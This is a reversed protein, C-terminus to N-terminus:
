KNTDYPPGYRIFSSSSVGGAVAELESEDLEREGTFETEGELEGQENMYFTIEVGEPLDHGTLEKVAAGADDLALELFADDEAVREKLQEFAANASEVTWKM